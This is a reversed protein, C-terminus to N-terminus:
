VLDPIFRDLTSAPHRRDLRQDAPKDAALQQRTLSMAPRPTRGHVTPEFITELGAEFARLCYDVDAHPSTLTTDLLGVAELTEHRILALRLSVPCLTPRHIEAVDSPVGRFREHWRRRLASYYFGAQEVLEGAYDVRGGAIAAPRGQMDTRARLRDLWGRATLEVDQGILLADFAQDRAVELGASAAAVLGAGDDQPVYVCQLEDAAAEVLSTAGPLVDEIILVQADPATRRLSVLSALLADLDSEAQLRVPVIALTPRIVIRLDAM